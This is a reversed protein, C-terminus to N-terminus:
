FSLKLLNSRSGMMFFVSVLIVKVLLFLVCPNLALIAVFPPLSTSLLLLAM